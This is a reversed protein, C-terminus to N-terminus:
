NVTNKKIQWKAKNSLSVYEKNEQYWQASNLRIEERHEIAYAQISIRDCRLCKGNSARRNHGGCRRYPKRFIFYSRNCLASLHQLQKLTSMSPARVQMAEITPKRQCLCAIMIM